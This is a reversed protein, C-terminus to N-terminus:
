PNGGLTVNAPAVADSSHRFAVPLNLGVVPSKTRRLRAPHVEVRGRKWRSASSVSSIPLRQRRRGPPRRRSRVGRKSPASSRSSPSRRLATGTTRSRITRSARARRSSWADRVARGLKGAIFHADWIAVGFAEKLLPDASPSTQGARSQLWRWAVTSCASALQAVPSAEAQVRRAEDERMAVEIEADSRDDANMEAIWQASPRPSDDNSEPHPIGVALELADKLDGCMAEAMQVAYVSCRSTFACRECWRDCYASIFDIRDSDM